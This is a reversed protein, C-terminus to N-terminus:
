RARLTDENLSTLREWTCSVEKQFTRVIPWSGATDWEAFSNYLFAEWIGVQYFLAERLLATKERPDSGVSCVGDRLFNLVTGFHTGDRLM